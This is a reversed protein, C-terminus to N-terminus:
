IPLLQTPKAFMTAIYILNKEKGEERGSLLSSLAVFVSCRLFRKDPKHFCFRAQKTLRAKYPSNIKGTHNQPKTLKTLRFRDHSAHNVKRRSPEHFHYYNEVGTGHCSPPYLKSLNKQKWYGTAGGTNRTRSLLIGSVLATIVVGYEYQLLWLKSYIPVHRRVGM